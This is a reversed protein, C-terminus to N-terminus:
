LSPLNENLIINIQTPEIGAMPKLNERINAFIRVTNVVTQHLNQNILVDMSGDILLARTDPTLGHGIFVTRQDIKAEKLAQAVGDSAGGINYIGILDPYQELLLHTQKYNTTMDDNGERLGILALNPFKEELLHQFGLEREEHGRYYRSGAIMAVHGTREGIFRGMLLGASRGAARNDLGVYAQRASHSLDSILTVTPIQREALTNVAERVIPHELAMFAIGDVRKGEHLLTEALKHPDFGDVYRTRCQVHYREFQEHANSAYDGLMNLYRNKGSPLVFLIRMAQPRLAHYLESEPLYNLEAAVKLVHQVTATRVGPRHNLVRDVTATSVGAQRAIDAINSRKQPQSLPLQKKMIVDFVMM